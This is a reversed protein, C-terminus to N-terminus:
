VDSGLKGLVKTKIELNQDNLLSVKYEIDKRFEEAKEVISINKKLKEELIKIDNDVEEVKNNIKFHPDKKCVSFIRDFITKWHEKKLNSTKEIIVQM